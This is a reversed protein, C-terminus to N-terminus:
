LIAGSSLHGTRAQMLVNHKHSVSVPVVSKHGKCLCDTVGGLKDLEKTKASVWDAEGFAKIKSM